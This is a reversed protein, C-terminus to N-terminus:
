EDWPSRRQNTEDLAAWSLRIADALADPMAIEGYLPTRLMVYGRFEEFHSLLGRLVKSIKEISASLADLEQQHAEEYLRENECYDDWADNSM